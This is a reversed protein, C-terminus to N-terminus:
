NGVITWAQDALGPLLIVSSVNTGNMLWVANAGNSTNRWAIDTQGDGNFDGTEVITWALDPLAPLLVVSSVNTGSM